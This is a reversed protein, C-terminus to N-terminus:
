AGMLAVAGAASPYSRVVPANAAAPRRDIRSVGKTEKLFVARFQDKDIQLGFRCSTKDIQSGM